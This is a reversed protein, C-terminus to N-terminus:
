RAGLFEARRFEAKAGGVRAGLPDREEGQHVWDSAVRCIEASDLDDYACPRPASARGRDPEGEARGSSPVSGGSVKTSGRVASEESMQPYVGCPIQVGM